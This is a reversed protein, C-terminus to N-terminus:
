VFCPERETIRQKKINKYNKDIMNYSFIENAFLILERKFSTM